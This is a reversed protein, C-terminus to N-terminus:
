LTRRRAPSAALDHRSAPLHCRRRKQEEVSEAVIGVVRSDLPGLEVEVGGAKARTDSRVGPPARIPLLLRRGHGITCLHKVSRAM